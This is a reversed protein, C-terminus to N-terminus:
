EQAALRDVLERGATTLAATTGSGPAKVRGLSVAPPRRDALVKGAAVDGGDLKASFGVGKSLEAKRLAVLIYLQTVTM